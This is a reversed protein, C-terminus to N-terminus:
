YEDFELWLRLIYVMDIVAMAIAVMFVLEAKDM